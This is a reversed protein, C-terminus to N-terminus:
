THHIESMSLHEICSLHASLPGDIMFSDNKGERTRM